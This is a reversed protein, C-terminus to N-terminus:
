PVLNKRRLELRDFGHRRAALDILREMVFMVEPRGASRYPTTPSTNTVVARGRLSVAPVRYVTTTLAMGKNLPGFHVGHAGLNSTNVGRFALFNGEADLALEAHSVLDRGHYDALFAERRESTWKVPRGVRRAAWAVLAFEPYCSNRTGFNGGVDGAMVRVASEPVGLAGAVGTQTRGLGGAGAHIIYRGSAPDWVGVAARPEMPVGTVRHVWTELRVVHAARGFAADVAAADGAEADVCVNSLIDEYLVPADPAAAAISGTVARLPAWDVAIREAGDRAAAPTEAIVMAVVEGVFRVRDAPIPPHPAIFSVDGPRIMEEYPNGPMPSHTLPKIGAAVADEGTLVAIVGSTALASATDIRGIRAHAHPSRVFCAYAQGALNVDDSYCGAGVLLRADEKRLVPKGFGERAARTRSSLFSM